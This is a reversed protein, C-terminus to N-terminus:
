RQTLAAAVAAAVASRSARLAHALEGACGKSTAYRAQSTTVSSARRLSSGVIRPSQPLNNWGATTGARRLCVGCSCSRAAAAHTVAARAAHMRLLRFVVASIALFHSSNLYGGVPWALRRREQHAALRFSTKMLMGLSTAPLIGHFPVQRLRQVPLHDEFRGCSPTMKTSSAMDSRMVSAALEM